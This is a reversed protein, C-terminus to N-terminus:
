HSDLPPELLSLDFCGRDLGAADRVDPPLSTDGNGADGRGVAGPHAVGLLSEVSPDRAARMPVYPEHIALLVARACSACVLEECSGDVTVVARQLLMGGCHVRPCRDGGRLGRLPSPPAKQTTHRIGNVPSYSM